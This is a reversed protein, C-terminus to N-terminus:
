DLLWVRLLDGMESTALVTAAVGALTGALPLWRGAGRGGVSVLAGVPAVGAALV